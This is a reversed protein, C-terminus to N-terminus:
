RCDSTIVAQQLHWEAQELLKTHRMLLRALRVRAAIAAKAHTRPHDILTAFVSAASQLLAHKDPGSCDRLREIESEFKAALNLLDAEESM